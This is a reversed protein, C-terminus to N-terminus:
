LQTVVVKFNKSNLLGMTVGFSNCNSYKRLIHPEAAKDQVVLHCM